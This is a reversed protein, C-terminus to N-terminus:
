YFPWIDIEQVIEMREHRTMFDKPALENCESVITENKNDCLRFKNKRPVYDIKAKM